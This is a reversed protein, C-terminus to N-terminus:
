LKLICYEFDQLWGTVPNKIDGVEVTIRRLLVHTDARLETRLGGFFYM